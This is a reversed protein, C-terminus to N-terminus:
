IHLLVLKYPLKNLIVIIFQLRVLYKGPALDEPITLNKITSLSSEIAFAEETRAFIEETEISMLRLDFQVDIKKTQGLNLLDTQLRLVGGPQVTPTLPSIKIDM